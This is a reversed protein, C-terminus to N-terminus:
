WNFGDSHGWVRVIGDSGGTLMEGGLGPAACMCTVVPSHEQALGSADRGQKIADLERKSLSNITKARGLEGLPVQMSLVM